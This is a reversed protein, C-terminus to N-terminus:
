SFFIVCSQAKGFFHAFFFEVDSEFSFDKSSLSEPTVFDTTGASRPTKLSEELPMALNFVIFKKM